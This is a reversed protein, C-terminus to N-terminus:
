KLVSGTSNSTTYTAYTRGLDSLGDGAGNVLFDEFVGFYAYREIWDQADMWPMVEKLFAIQGAESDQLMFETIWIPKGGSRSHCEMLYNEFTEATANDYWHVPLFDIECGTCDALFTDLWGLGIDLLTGYGANTVAPGGLRVEGALPQVYTLYGAAADISTINAQSGLDPENFTLVNKAAEAAAPWAPDAATALGWLMPVFEFSSDLGNSPLGWNYGWTVEAKGVFLNALNADNYSLGRKGAAASAKTALALAAVALQSTRSLTM